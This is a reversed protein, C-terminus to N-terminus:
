SWGLSLAAEAPEEKNIFALMAAVNHSLQHMSFPKKLFANAGAQEAHAMDEPLASEGTVLIPIRRLGLPGRIFECLEYGSRTPLSLDICVLHFTIDGLALERIAAEYHFASKVEFGMAALHKAMNRALGPDDEVVLVSRRSGEM